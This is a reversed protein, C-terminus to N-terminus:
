TFFPDLVKPLVEDTIGCGSDAIAISANKDKVMSEITIAGKSEIAQIANIIINTFMTHLAAINGVTYINVPSYKKTVSIRDRLKSETIVEYLM